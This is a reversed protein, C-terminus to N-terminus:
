ETLDIRKNITKMPIIDTERWLNYNREFIPWRLWIDALIITAEVKRNM